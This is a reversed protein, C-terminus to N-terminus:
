VGQHPCVPGRPETRHKQFPSRWAPSLNLYTVVTQWIYRVKYLLQEIEKFQEPSLSGPDVGRVEKGFETFKSPDASAPLPLPLVEIAM